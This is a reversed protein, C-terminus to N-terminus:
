LQLGTFYPYAVQRGCLSTPMGNLAKGLSVVFLSALKNEVSDRRASRWAPVSHISNKLTKQYSEVKPIFGLDVSQLASAGVVVGDRRNRQHDNEYDIVAPMHTVLYWFIKNIQGFFQIFRLRTSLTHAFKHIFYQNEITNPIVM